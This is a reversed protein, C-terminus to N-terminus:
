RTQKLIKWLLDGYTYKFSLRAIFTVGLNLLGLGDYMIKLVWMQAKAHISQLNSREM